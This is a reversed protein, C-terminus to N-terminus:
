KQVIQFECKKAPLDMQIKGLYSQLQSKQEGCLDFGKQCANFVEGLAVKSDAFHLRAYPFQYEMTCVQDHSLAAKEECLKSSALISNLNVLEESSLCYQLDPVPENSADEIVHIVGTKVDIEIHHTSFNSAAKSQVIDSQIKSELFPSEPIEVIEVQSVDIKEIPTVEAPNRMADSSNSDLAQNNRACNQFGVVLCFTLVVYVHRKMLGGSLLRPELSM